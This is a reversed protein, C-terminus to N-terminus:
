AKAAARRKDAGEKAARLLSAQKAARAAKAASSHYLWAATLGIVLALGLLVGVGAVVAKWVVVECLSVSASGGTVAFSHAASEKCACWFPCKTLALASGCASVNLDTIQLACPVVGELRSQVLSCMQLDVGGSVHGGGGEGLLPLVEVDGGRLGFLDQLFANM